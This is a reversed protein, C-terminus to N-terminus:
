HVLTRGSLSLSSICAVQRPAPVGRGQARRRNWSEPDTDTTSRTTPLASTATVGPAPVAFRVDREPGGVRIPDAPALDSPPDGNPSYLLLSSRQSSAWCM